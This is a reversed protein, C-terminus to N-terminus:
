FKIIKLRARLEKNTAKMKELVSKKDVTSEKDEYTEKMVKRYRKFALLEGLHSPIIRVILISIISLFSFKFVLFSIVFVIFFILVLYNYVIPKKIFYEPTEFFLGLSKLTTWKIVLTATILYLSVFILTLIIM